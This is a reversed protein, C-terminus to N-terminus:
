AAVEETTNLNVTGNTPLIRRICVGASGLISQLRDFIIRERHWREASRNEAYEAPPGDWNDRGSLDMGWCDIEKCGMHAAAAIAATSTWITWELSRDLTIQDIAWVGHEKLWPCATLMNTYEQLTTIVPPKNSGCYRHLEPSPMDLMAMYDCRFLRVAANVAIRIDYGDRDAFLPLSPGSCLIAAKVQQDGAQRV